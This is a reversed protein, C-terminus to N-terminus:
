LIKISNTIINSRNNINQSKPWVSHPISGGQHHHHHYPLKTVLDHGVRAVEHVIAGLSQQGHSEGALIRSHTAM